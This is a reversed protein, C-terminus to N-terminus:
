GLMKQVERFEASLFDMNQSFYNTIMIYNIEPLNESTAQQYNPEM